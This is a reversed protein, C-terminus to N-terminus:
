DSPFSNALIVIKSDDVPVPQPYPARRMRLPPSKHIATIDDRPVITPRLVQLLLGSFIM